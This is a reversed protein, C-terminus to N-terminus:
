LKTKQLAFTMDQSSQKYNEVTQLKKFKYDKRNKAM